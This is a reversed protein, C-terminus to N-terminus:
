APGRTAERLMRELRGPDEEVAGPNTTTGVGDDVERLVRLAVRRGDRLLLFARPGSSSRAM